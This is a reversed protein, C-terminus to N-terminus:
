LCQNLCENECVSARDLFLQICRGQILGERHILNVFHSAGKLEVTQRSHTNHITQRSLFVVCLVLLQNPVFNFCKFAELQLLKVSM